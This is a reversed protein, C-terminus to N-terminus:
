KFLNWFSRKKIIEDDSLGSNFEIVNSTDNHLIPLNKLNITEKKYNERKLKKSTLNNESIYFTIVFYFFILVLFLLFLNLIKLKM